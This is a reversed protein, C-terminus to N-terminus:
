CNKKTLGEVSDLAIKRHLHSYHIYLILEDVITHDVMLQQKFLQVNRLYISCESM